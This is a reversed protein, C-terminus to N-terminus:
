GGPSVVSFHLAARPIWGTPGGPYRVQVWAENERLILVELGAFLEFLSPAQEDPASHAAIKEQIVTGRPQGRDMLKTLLLGLHLSLLLLAAVHVAGVRPLPEEDLLARRRDGIYRLALFGVLLLIPAGVLALAFLSVGSLVRARYVEWFEARHPIEKVPLKELVFDLAQAPASEDPALEVADRLLGAALGWQELRAAAIGANTLLAPDDPTQNLLVRLEDLAKQNDGHHLATLAGAFSPAADEAFASGAAFIVGILTLAAVRGFLIRFTM